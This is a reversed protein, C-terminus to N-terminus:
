DWASSSSCFALPSNAVKASRPSSRLVQLLRGFSLSPPIWPFTKPTVALSATLFKKISAQLSLQSEHDPPNSQTALVSQPQTSDPRTNRGPLYWTDHQFACHSLTLAKWRKSSGKSALVLTGSGTNRPRERGALAVCAITLQRRRWMESAGLNRAVASAVVVDTGILGWRWLGPRGGM